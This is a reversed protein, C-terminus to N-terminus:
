SWSRHVEEVTELGDYDSIEWYVDDPIEVIKLESVQTNALERLEEIVAIVDPHTRIEKTDYRKTFAYHSSRPYSWPVFYESSTLDILEATPDAPDFDNNYVTVRWGREILKLFAAHSLDFGGFCRNIAVKM